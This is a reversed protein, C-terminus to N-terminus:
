IYAVLARRLWQRAVETTGFWVGDWAGFWTGDWM